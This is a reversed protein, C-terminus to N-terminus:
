GKLAALPGVDEAMPQFVTSNTAVINGTRHFASLYRSYHKEGEEFAGFVEMAEAVGPGAEALATEYDIFDKPERSM